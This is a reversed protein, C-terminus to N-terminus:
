TKTRGHHGPKLLPVLTDDAPLKRGALVYRDLAEALPNLLTSVVQGVWNAVTSDSWNLGNEPVPM